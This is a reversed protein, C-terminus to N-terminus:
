SPSLFLQILDAVEDVEQLTSDFEDKNFHEPSSYFEVDKVLIEHFYQLARVVLWYKRDTSKLTIM